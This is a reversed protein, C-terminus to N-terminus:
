FNLYSKFGKLFFRTWVDRFMLRQSVNKNKVGGGGRLFFYLNAPLDTGRQIVRGAYSKPCTGGEM